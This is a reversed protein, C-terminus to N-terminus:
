ATLDLTGGVSSMTVPARYNSASGGLTSNGTASPVIPNGDLGDGGVRDGHATRMDHRLHAFASKAAGLKGTGLAAGLAVTDSQLQKVDAIRQPSATGGAGNAAVTPRPDSQLQAFAAQAGSLNNSSLAQSLARFDTSRQQLASKLSTSTVHASSASSLSSISM